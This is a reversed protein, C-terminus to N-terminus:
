ALARYDRVHGGVGPYQVLVAFGASQAAQTADGTVIEIDLPAARTRMVAITQPLVDNAVFMRAASPKGARQEYLRLAFTMAEAAATAEDLMSANAVEMATLDCVMTQFNILAELRGQSIEPQYPTYATYWAPSEFVNRQIVGPTVTGYYGQGIFSKLVRNRVALARVAALAEAEGMAGHLALPSRRRISAPVVDDIMASRSEYGLTRLMDSQEAPTTGIHRAIFGEHQALEDLSLRAPTSETVAGPLNSAVDNM